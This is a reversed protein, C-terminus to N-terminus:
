ESFTFPLINSVIPTGMSSSSNSFVSVCISTLGDLGYDDTVSVHTEPKLLHAFKPRQLLQM